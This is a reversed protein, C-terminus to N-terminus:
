APRADLGLADSRSSCHREVLDVAAESDRRNM